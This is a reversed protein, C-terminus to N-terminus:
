VVSKRDVSPELSWAPEDTLYLGGLLRAKWSKRPMDDAMVALQSVAFTLVTFIIKNMM